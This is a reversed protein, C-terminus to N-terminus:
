FKIKLFDKISISKVGEKEFWMKYTTKSGKRIPLDPNEFVMVLKLNPNQKQIYVYKRREAITRIYGKMEYIVDGIVFDPLYTHKSAPVTYKVKGDKPEYKFKVKKKELHKYAREELKSRTKM